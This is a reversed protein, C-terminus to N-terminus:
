KATHSVRVSTNLGNAKAKDKATANRKAAKAKASKYAKRKDARVKATAKAAKAIMNGDAKSLGVATVTDGFSVTIRIDTKATHLAYGDSIGEIRSAIDTAFQAYWLPLYHEQAAKLTPFDLTTATEHKIINGSKKDSATINIIGFKAM